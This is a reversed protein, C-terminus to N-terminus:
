SRPLTTQQQQQPQRQQTHIAPTRTSVNYDAYIMYRAHTGFFSKNDNNLEL